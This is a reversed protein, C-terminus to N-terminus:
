LTENSRLDNEYENRLGCNVFIIEVHEYDHFLDKHIHIFQLLDFKVMFEWDHNVHVKERYYGCM